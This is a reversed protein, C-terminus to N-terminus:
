RIQQGAEQPPVPAQLQPFAEVVEPAMVTEYAPM